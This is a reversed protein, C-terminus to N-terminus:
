AMQDLLTAMNGKVVGELSVLREGMHAQDDSFGDLREELTTVQDIIGSLAQMKEELQDLRTRTNLHRPNVPPRGVHLALVQAPDTANLGEAMAVPDREVLDSQYWSDRVFKFELKARAASSVSLIGIKLAKLHTLLCGPVMDDEFDEDEWCEEKMVRFTSYSEVILHAMNSFEPKEPHSEFLILSQADVKVDCDNNERGDPLSDYIICSQEKVLHKGGSGMDGYLELRSLHLTKLRSFCISSPIKFISKMMLKLVELTEYNFDTALFVISSAGYVGYELKVEPIQHKRNRDKMQKVQDSSICHSSDWFELNSISIWLHKWQKTLLSTAVAEKTTLLSIIRHLVVDPLNSISDGGGGVNAIKQTKSKPISVIADM